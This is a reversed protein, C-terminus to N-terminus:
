RLLTVTGRATQTAMPSYAYRCFWAYTGQPAPEGNSLTGDWPANPDDSYHVLLGQRNYIYIEFSLLTM